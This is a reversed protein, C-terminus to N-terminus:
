HYDRIYTLATFIVSITTPWLAGKAFGETQWQATGASDFCVSVNTEPRYVYGFVGSGSCPGPDGLLAFVLVAVVVVLVSRTVLYKM